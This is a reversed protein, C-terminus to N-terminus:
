TPPVQWLLMWISPLVWHKGASCQGFCWVALKGEEWLADQHSTNGLYAVCVCRAMWTIYFFVHNMLGPWRGNSWPGTRISVNGNNTSETTSLPWFTCGLHDAAICSWICCVAICQTNQCREILVRMLKKLLKLLLLEATPDSWGKHGVHMLSEQDGLVMDCTCWKEKRPCRKISVSWQLGPVGWLLQLKPSVSVWNDLWWLKARTLSVWIGNKRSRVCWSKHYCTWKSDLIDWGSFLAMSFFYDTNNVEGTVSWLTIGSRHIDWGAEWKVKLQFMSTYDQPRM